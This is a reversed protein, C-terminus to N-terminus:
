YCSHSIQWETPGYYPYCYALHRVTLMLSPPLSTPVPHNWKYATILLHLAATAGSINDCNKCLM